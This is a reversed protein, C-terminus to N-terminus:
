GCCGCCPADECVHGRARVTRIIEGTPSAAEREGIDLAGERRPPPSAEFADADADCEDALARLRRAEKLARDRASAFRLFGRDVDMELKHAEGRYREALTRMRNANM